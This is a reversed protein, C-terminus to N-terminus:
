RLSSPLLFLERGIKRVLVGAIETIHPHVKVRLPHILRTGNREIPREKRLVRGLDVM